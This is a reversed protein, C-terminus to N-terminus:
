EPMTVRRIFGKRHHQRLSNEVLTRGIATLAGLFPVRCLRIWQTTFVLWGLHYQGRFTMTATLFVEPIIM